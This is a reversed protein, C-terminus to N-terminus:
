HPPHALRRSPARRLRQRRRSSVPGRRRPRRVAGRGGPGRRQSGAVPHGVSQRARRRPGPPQTGPGRHPPPRGPGRRVLRPARRRERGGGGSARERQAPAAEEAGVVARRRPARSPRRRGGLNRRHRPNVVGSQAARGQGGASSRRGGAGRRQASSPAARRGGGAVARRGRLCFGDAQPQRPGPPPQYRPRQGARARGPAEPWRGAPDGCTTRQAVHRHPARLGGRDGRAIRRRVAQPVTRAPLGRESGNPLSQVPWPGACRAGPPRSSRLLRGPALGSAAGAEPM